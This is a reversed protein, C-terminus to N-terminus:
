IKNNILKFFKFKFHGIIQFNDNQLPKCKEFCVNIYNNTLPNLLNM